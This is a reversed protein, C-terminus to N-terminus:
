CRPYRLLFDHKLNDPPCDESQDDSEDGPQQHRAFIRHPQNHGGDEADDARKQSRVEAADQESSAGIILGSPQHGNQARQDQEEKIANEEFPALVLPAGSTGRRNVRTPAQHIKFGTRVRLEAPYLTLRRLQLDRTRIAAPTDTFKIVSHCYFLSAAGADRKMERRAAKGNGMEWEGDKM